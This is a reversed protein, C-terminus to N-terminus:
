KTEMLLTANKIFGVHQNRNKWDSAEDAYPGNKRVYHLFVQGSYYGGPGDCRDRWHEIDCGPYVVGDGEALDFRQGRMYIPWAYHHSRGLQITVSVECAARDTHTELVDGNSYLRAYAYTPILEEGVVDEITPWLRELITEFMYEHDLKALANPIQSDGKEVQTRGAFMLVHTFLHCFEAPILKPIHILNNNKITQKNLINWWKKL